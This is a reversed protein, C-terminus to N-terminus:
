MHNFTGRSHGLGHLRRYASQPRLWTSLCFIYAQIYITDAVHCQGGRAACCSCLQQMHTHHCEPLITTANLLLTSGLWLPNYQNRHVNQKRLQTVSPSLSCQAKMVPLQIYLHCNCVQVIRYSSKATGCWHVVSVMISSHYVHPSVM